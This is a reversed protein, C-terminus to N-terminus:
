KRRLLASALFQHGAHVAVTKRTRFDTVDVTGRHVITLTGDCRDITDWITGRVTGASYRGSTRFRGSVHSHLTQLVRKSLAAHAVSGSARHAGCSAYSPSGRFTGELLSLTTLGKHLGKRDQALNFLGGGFTGTQVKGRRLSAGALTLSGRRADVQTGVPLQRPGVLRVFGKGKALAEGGLVDRASHSKGAPLKVFVQGSVPSADLSKGLVPPATQSGRAWYTGVTGNSSDTLALVEPDGAPSVDGDLALIAAVGPPAGLDIPAELGSATLGRAFVHLGGSGVSTYFTWLRETSDAAVSAAGHYTSDNVITTSSSSGVRWLLVKTTAPYGAPYAVYFKPPNSPVAVIPTRGLMQVHNPAGNYTTVSGPMQLAPGSPAGTLPNVAQSWVGMHGTANSDWALQLSNGQAALNSQYGCCGAGLAAQFDQDPTAPDRGVHVTVGTTHSWTEVPTGNLLTVANLESGYVEDRDFLATPTSWTRGGDSSTAAFLGTPCASTSTVCQIGGFFAELGGGSTNIIAPYSVSSFGPAIVTPKGVTGGPSIAVHVIDLTGTGGPTYRLWVVHLVGDASRVSGTEASIGTSGTVPVWSVANASAPAFVVVALVTAAVVASLRKVASGAVVGRSM